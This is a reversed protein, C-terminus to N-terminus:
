SYTRLTFPRFRSALFLLYLVAMQLHIWPRAHGGNNIRSTHFHSLLLLLSFLFLSLSLLSSTINRRAAAAAREKGQKNTEIM